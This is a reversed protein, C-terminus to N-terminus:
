NYYSQNQMNLLLSKNIKIQKAKADAHLQYIIIYQHKEPAVLYLDHKTM